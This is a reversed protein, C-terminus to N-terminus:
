ICPCGNRIITRSSKCHLNNGGNSQSSSTHPQAIYVSCTMPPASLGGGTSAQASVGVKMGSLVLQSVLSAEVRCKM